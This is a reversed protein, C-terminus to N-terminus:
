NKMKKVFPLTNSLIFKKAPTSLPLLPVFIDKIVLGTKILNDVMQSESLFLVIAKNMRSTSRINAGGIAASVAIV